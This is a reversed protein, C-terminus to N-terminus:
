RCPFRTAVPEVMRRGARSHLALLHLDVQSIVIWTTIWFAGGLRFVNMLGVFDQQTNTM